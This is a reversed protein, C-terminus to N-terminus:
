SSPGRLVLLVQVTGPRAPKRSDLFRKVEASGPRPRVPNYALALAHHEPAKAGAKEPEPQVVGAAALDVGVLESLEKHDRKTMRTVVLSDFQVDPPRKTEGKKDEAALQRMLQLLEEPTLDEAVFVYNTKFRPQKLRGQAVQDILLSNGKDKWVKQFRDFARTGDKCLLEIRFATDQKWESLLKTRIAEQDLERLKVTVPLAVSATELKFMEMSPATFVPEGKPASTEPAAPKEVPRQVVQTPPQSPLDKLQPTPERASEEKPKEVVRPTEATPQPEPAPPAKQNHALRASDDGSLAHAFFFYSGTVVALFAAAAVVAGLWAPYVGFPRAEPQRRITLHREAITRLVPLALDTELAPAELRQLEGSDEKLKELLQRAEASRHLLRAVYRRQRNSLEGDVYVTLIERDRDSLM